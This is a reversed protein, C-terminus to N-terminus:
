LPTVAMSELLTGQFRIRVSFALFAASAWDVFRTRGPSGAAGATHGAGTGAAAAKAKFDDCM